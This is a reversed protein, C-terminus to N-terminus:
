TEEKHKGEWLSGYIFLIDQKGKLIVRVSFESYSNFVFYAIIKLVFSVSVFCSLNSNQPSRWFYHRSIVSSVSVLAPGPNSIPPLSRHSFVRGAAASM